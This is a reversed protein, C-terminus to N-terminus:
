LVAVAACFLCVYLFFYINLFSLTFLPLLCKRLFLLLSLARLLRQYL